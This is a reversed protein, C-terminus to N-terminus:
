QKTCKQLANEVQGTQVPALSPHWRYIIYNYINSIEVANLAPNAPMPFNFATGDVMVTDDLGYRIICAFAPAYTEFDQSVLSPYLKELGSGDSMHCSACHIEYLRKGQQYPNQQCSALCIFFFLILRAM